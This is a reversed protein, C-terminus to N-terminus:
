AKEYLRRPISFNNVPISVKIDYHTKYSRAKATAEVGSTGEALM